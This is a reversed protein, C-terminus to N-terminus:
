PNTKPYISIMAVTVVIGAVRRGSRGKEMNVDKNRNFLKKRQQQM